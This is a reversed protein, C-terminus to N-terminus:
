INKKVNKWRHGGCFLNVNVESTPFKPFLLVNMLYLHLPTSLMVNNDRGELERHRTILLVIVVRGM